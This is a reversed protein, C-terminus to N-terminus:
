KIIAPLYGYRLIPVNPLSRCMQSTSCNHGYGPCSNPFSAELDKLFEAFEQNLITNIAMTTTKKKERM